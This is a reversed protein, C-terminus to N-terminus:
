RIRRWAAALAARTAGIGVLGAVGGGGRRAGRRGVSTAEPRRRCELNRRDVLGVNISTEVREDLLHRVHNAYM